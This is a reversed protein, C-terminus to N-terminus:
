KGGFLRYGIFLQLTNNKVTFDGADPDSDDSTNALGVVYRVGGNFPGFDVGLGIAAGLDLGKYSDKIDETTGDAEGKASLLFGLQPGAQLSINETFNYRVLVPLSLYNLKTTTEFGQIDFKSGMSSFYLEPQIGIKDSLSATLYLGGLLGLKSDPSVSLGDADLKQNAINAGLRIGGSIQSMAMPAFACVFAILLLQKKM